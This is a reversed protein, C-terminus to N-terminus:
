TRAERGDVIQVGAGSRRRASLDRMAEKLAVAADKATRGAVEQEESEAYQEALEFDEIMDDLLALELTYEDDSPGAAEKFLEYVRLLAERDLVTVDQTTM